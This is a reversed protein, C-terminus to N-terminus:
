ETTLIELGYGPTGSEAASCKRTGKTYLLGESSPSCTLDKDNGKSWPASWANWTICKLDNLWTQCLQPEHASPDGYCRWGWSGLSRQVITHRPRASTDWPPALHLNDKPPVPIVRPLSLVKHCHCLPQFGRSVPFEELLINISLTANKPCM